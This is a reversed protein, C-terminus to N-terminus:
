PGYIALVTLVFKNKYFIRFFFLTNSMLLVLAQYLEKLVSKKLLKSVMPQM